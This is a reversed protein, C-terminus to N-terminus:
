GPLSPSLPSATHSLYVFLGLRRSFSPIVSCSAPVHALPVTLISFDTWVHRDPRMVRAWRGGNLMKAGHTKTVPQVLRARRRGTCRKGGNSPPSTSDPLPRLRLKLRLELGELLFHSFVPYLRLLLLRLLVRGGRQSAVAQAVADPLLSSLHSEVPRGSQEETVM